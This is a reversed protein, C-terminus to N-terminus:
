RPNFVVSAHEIEPHMLDNVKVGYDSISFVNDEVYVSRRMWAYWYYDYGCYGEGYLCASEHVLDEHDVRAVPEQRRRDVERGHQRERRGPPRARHADKEAHRRDERDVEEPDRAEEDEPCVPRRRELPNMQM